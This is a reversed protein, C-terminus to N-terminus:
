RDPQSEQAIMQKLKVLARGIGGLEQLLGNSVAEKGVLVTGLDRSLMSTNMMLEELKKTEIRSHGAIFNLIRDQIQQFQSYTQPTGLVTGNM